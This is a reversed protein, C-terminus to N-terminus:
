QQEYNTLAITGGVKNGDIYVGGEKNLLQELLNAIRGLEASNNGGGGGSKGKNFLDTGAIIDDKDNLAIAGEPGMLTRNGYGGGGGPSFVDDGKFYSKGLQYAAVAAGAALVPGVFPIGAVAKAANIALSGIAKLISKNRFAEAIKEKANNGAQVVGKAIEIAKQAKAAIISRKQYAYIAGFTTLAIAATTKTQFLFGLFKSIGSVMSKIVNGIFQFVPKIAEITVKIAALVADLIGTDELLSTFGEVIGVVSELIVPM